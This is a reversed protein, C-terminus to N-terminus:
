SSKEGAGGGKWNMIGVTKKLKDSKVEAIKKIVGMLGVENDASLDWGYVQSDVDLWIVAIRGEGIQERIFTERSMKSSSNKKLDYFAYLMGLHFIAAGIFLLTLSLILM